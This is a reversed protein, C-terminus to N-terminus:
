SDDACIWTKPPFKELIRVFKEYNMKTYEEIEREPSIGLIVNLAFSRDEHGIKAYFISQRYAKEYDDKEPIKSCISTIEAPDWNWFYDAYIFNREYHFSMYIDYSEGTDRFAERLQNRIVQCAIVAVVLEEPTNVQHLQYRHFSKGIIKEPLSITETLPVIPLIRRENYFDGCFTIEEDIGRNKDSVISSIRSFIKWMKNIDDISPIIEFQNLFEEWAREDFNEHIVKKREKLEQLFRKKERHSFEPIPSDLLLYFSELIESVNLSFSRIRFFIGTSYAFAEIECEYDQEITKWPDLEFIRHEIEHHFEENIFISELFVTIQTSKM